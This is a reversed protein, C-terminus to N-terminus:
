LGSAWTALHDQDAEGVPRVPTWVVGRLERGGRATSAWSSQEAVQLSSFRDLELQGIM